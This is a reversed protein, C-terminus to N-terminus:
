NLYKIYQLSRIVIQAYNKRSIIIQKQLSEAYKEIIKTFDQYSTIANLM